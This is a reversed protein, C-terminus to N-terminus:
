SVIPNESLRDKTTQHHIDDDGYIGESNMIPVSVRLYANDFNEIYSRSLKHKEGHWGDSYRCRM